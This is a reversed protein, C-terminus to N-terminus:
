HWAAVASDALFRARQRAIAASEQARLRHRPRAPGIALGEDHPVDAASGGLLIVDAWSAVLVDRGPHRVDHGPWPIGTPATLVTSVPVPVAPVPPLIAPM